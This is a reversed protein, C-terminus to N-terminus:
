KGRVLMKTLEVIADPSREIDHYDLMLNAKYLAWEVFMVHQTVGALEHEATGIEVLEKTIDLREQRFDRDREARAAALSIVPPKDDDHATL